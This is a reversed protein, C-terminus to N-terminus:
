NVTEKAFWTGNPLAGEEYEARFLQPITGWCPTATFIRVIGM